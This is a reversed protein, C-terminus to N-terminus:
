FKGERRLSSVEWSATKSARDSELLSWQLNSHNLPVGWCTGNQVGLLYQECGHQQMLGDPVCRWSIKLVCPVGSSAEHAKNLLQWNATAGMAMLSM